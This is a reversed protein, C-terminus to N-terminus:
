LTSVRGHADCTVGDWTSPHGKEWGKLGLFAQYSKWNTFEQTADLLARGPAACAPINLSNGNGLFQWEVVPFEQTADLLARGPAACVAVILYKVKM